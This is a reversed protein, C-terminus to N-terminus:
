TLAVEREEELKRGARSLQFREAHLELVVGAAQNVEGGQAVPADDQEAPLEAFAVLYFPPVVDLRAEGSPLRELSHFILYSFTFSSQPACRRKWNKMKLKANKM